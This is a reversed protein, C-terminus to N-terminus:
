FVAPQSIRKLFKGRKFHKSMWLERCGGSSILHEAQEKELNGSLSRLEWLCIFDGLVCAAALLSLQGTWEVPPRSTCSSGPWARCLWCKSTGTKSPSRQYPLFHPGPLHYSLAVGKLLFACVRPSKTISLPLDSLCKQWELQRTWQRSQNAPACAM